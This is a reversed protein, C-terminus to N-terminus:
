EKKEKLKKALKINSLKKSMSLEVLTDEIEKFYSSIIKNYEETSGTYYCVIEKIKNLKDLCRRVRASNKM